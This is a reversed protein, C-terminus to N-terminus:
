RIKASEARVLMATSVQVCFNDVNNHTRTTPLMGSLLDERVLWVVPRLVLGHM